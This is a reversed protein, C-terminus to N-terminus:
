EPVLVRAQLLDFGARGYGQRKILKLRNVHGETPGNSWELELGAMVAAQDKRLGKALTQLEGVSSDSAQCLWGELAVAHRERVIRFFEVGLGQAVAIPPCQRQLRELFTQQGPTLEGAEGLLWWAVTRKSPLRESTPDRAAKGKKGTKLALPLVARWPALYRQVGAMSGPFGREVLERYLRRGNHCGAKWRKKLYRAFPKTVKCPQGGVGRPRTASEPEDQFRRVTDTALGTRKAIETVGIGLRSLRKVTAVRAARAARRAAQQQRQLQRTSPPKGPRQEGTTPGAAAVPPDRGAATTGISAETAAELAAQRLARLQRAVVGELAAVMNQLLHFRDAVQIAQPAGLRAGEAYAGSRDRCIVAVGPHSLLWNSLTEAKRDPLLAIARRAELDILITGYRRGRKFAWDDVGLIRPTPAESPVRRKLLSLLADPSVALGLAQALRAAAEAAMATGLQRLAETLRDSKHAYRAVVGSLRETFIRCGCSPADCFFRRSKVQLRVPTGAWPLDAVHRQYRSHVRRARQGCAPCSAEEAITILVLTIAESTPIIKELRLLRPDPSLPNQM